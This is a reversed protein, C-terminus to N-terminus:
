SLTMSECGHGGSAEIVADVGSNRVDLARCRHWPHPRPPSFADLSQGASGKM